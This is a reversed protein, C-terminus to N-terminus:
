ILKYLAVVLLVLLWNIAHSTWCYPCPMRTRYLLSYALWVSMLAAATVAALVTIWLWGTAVWVAMGLLLYYAIGFASNPVGFLLEAAPRQVVSPEALAGSRARLTKRFMFVSAYLGLACLATITVKLTLM